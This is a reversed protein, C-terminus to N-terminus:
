SLREVLPGVVAAHSFASDSVKAARSRMDERLERDGLLTRIADALAQPDGPAVYTAGDGLLKQQPDTRSTIVACGAAMSQYVKNPVVRQAKETTGFIGLAISHNAVIDPLDGSEVWDIWTVPADGVITRVEDYDQGTGIMTTKPLDGSKNLLALAHAIVPAGQLPTYLGFFVIGNDPDQRRAEFWADPAGVPVVVGKHRMSQPALQAHAPTDYVVVTAAGIALRDLISLVSALARGRAGRDAATDAAYILHDLVITAKPFLTRALVVDFHGLYGVVVVDPSYEGRYQASAKILRSWNKALNGFFGAAAKPSSLAEVRSETSVTSPENIERVTHGADKLGELLIGARPHVSTNYTGFGLIKM